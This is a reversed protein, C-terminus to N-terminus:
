SDGKAKKTVGAVTYVENPTEDTVTGFYGQKDAQDQAKQLEAKGHDAAKTETSASAKKPNPSTEKESM